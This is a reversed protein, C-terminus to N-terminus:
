PLDSGRSSHSITLIRIEDGVVEYLVIYSYPLVTLRRVAPDRTRAGMQSQQSLLDIASRIRAQVRKAGIPSHDAIYDLIASLDGLVRQTYRLKM